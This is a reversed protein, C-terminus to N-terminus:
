CLVYCWVSLYAQRNSAIGYRQLRVLRAKLVNKEHLLSEYVKKQAEAHSVRQFLKTKIRWYNHYRLNLLHMAENDTCGQYMLKELEQLELEVERKTKKSKRPKTNTSSDNPSPNSNSNSNSPSSSSSSNLVSANPSPPDESRPDPM